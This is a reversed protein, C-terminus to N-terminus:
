RARRHRDIHGIAKLMHFKVGFLTMGLRGAIEKYSYGDVRSLLFIELTRPKLQRLIEDFHELEQRGVLERHQDSPAPQDLGEILPVSMRSIRTSGREARDQLLNSAIRRLYAQPTQIRTAPSIRLFHTLAEQALDEAEDASGLQRRFYRVLAPAEERYLDRFAAEDFVESSSENCEDPRGRGDFPLMM